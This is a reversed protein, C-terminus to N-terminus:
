WDSWQYRCRADHISFGEPPSRDLLNCRHPVLLPPLILTHAPHQANPPACRSSGCSSSSYNSSVTKTTTSCGFSIPSFRCPCCALSSNTRGNSNRNRLPNRLPFACRVLKLSQVADSSEHVLAGFLFIPLNYVPASFPSIIFSLM